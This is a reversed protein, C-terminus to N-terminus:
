NLPKQMGEKFCHEACALYKVEEGTFSSNSNICDKIQYFLDTSGLGGLTYAVKQVTAWRNGPMVESLLQLEKNVLASNGSTNSKWASTNFNKQPAPKPKFHSIRLPEIKGRTVPSADYSIYRLDTVNRGKGTDAQLGYDKLVDFIHLAYEAHRDPEAIAALAFFGYGSCSLSCYFVFPLGILCQKLEEIDYDKISEYDFDLQVIGTRELIITNGKARSEITAGPSWLQLRKKIAIKKINYDPDNPDLKRLDFVPQLDIGRLRLYLIDDLTTHAGTVRRQDAFFTVQKKIWNM